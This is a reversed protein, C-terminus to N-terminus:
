LVAKEIECALRISSPTAYPLRFYELNPRNQHKRMAWCNPCCAAGIFTLNQMSSCEATESDCALNGLPTFLSECPAGYNGFETLNKSEPRAPAVGQVSWFSTQCILAHWLDVKAHSIKGHDTFLYSFGYFEFDPTCTKGTKFPRSIEIKLEARPQM